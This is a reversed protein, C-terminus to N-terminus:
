RKAVGWKCLMTRFNPENTLDTASKDRKEQQPQPYIAQQDTDM